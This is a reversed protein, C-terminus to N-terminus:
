RLVRVRLPVPRTGGQDGSVRGPGAGVVMLRSASVSRFAPSGPEQIVAAPRGSWRRLAALWALLWSRMGPWRGLSGAGR